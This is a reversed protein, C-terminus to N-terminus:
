LSVVCVCANVRVCNSQQQQQQKKRQYFFNPVFRLLSVSFFCFTSYHTVIYVYLPHVSIFSHTSTSSSSSSFSPPFTFSRFSVSHVSFQIYSVDLNVSVSSYYSVRLIFQIKNQRKKVKQFCFTGCCMNHDNTKRDKRNIAIAPHCTMVTTTIASSPKTTNLHYCYIDKTCSKFVYKERAQSDSPVASNKTKGYM